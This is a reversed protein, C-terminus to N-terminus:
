YSPQITKSKLYETLYLRAEERGSTYRDQPLILTDLNLKNHKYAIEEFLSIDMEIMWMGSKVHEFQQDAMDKFNNEINDSKSFFADIVHGCYQVGAAFACLIDKKVLELQSKLQRHKKIMVMSIKVGAVAWILYAIKEMLSAQVTIALYLLILPFGTSTILGLVMLLTNRIIKYRIGSVERNGREALSEIEFVYSEVLALYEGFNHDNIKKLKKIPSKPLLMLYIGINPM